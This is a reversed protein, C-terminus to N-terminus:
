TTASIRQKEEERLRAQPFDAVIDNFGIVTINTAPLPVLEQIPEVVNRAM